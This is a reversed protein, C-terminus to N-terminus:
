FLIALKQCIASLFIEDDMTFPAPSHSDIDIEAVFVGNKLVPVVIESQVDLSCAIYNSEQSVDQVIKSKGSVAVQGCVGQGVPIFTHDTPKGYYPGLKLQQNQYDLIYFGVWDYHYVENKLLNCTDSLIENLTKDTALLKEIEQLLSTFNINM